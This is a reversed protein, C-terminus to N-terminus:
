PCGGRDRCLRPPRVAHHRKGAHHAGGDVGLGLDPPRDVTHVSDGRSEEPLTPRPLVVNGSLLILDPCRTAFIAGLLRYIVVPPEGGDDVQEQAMPPGELGDLVKNAADLRPSVLLNLVPAGIPDADPSGGIRRLGVDKQVIPLLSLLPLM